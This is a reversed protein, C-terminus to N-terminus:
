PASHTKIPTTKSHLDPNATAHPTTNQFTHLRQPNPHSPPQPIVISSPSSQPHHHTNFPSTYPHTTHNTIPTTPFIYPHYTRPSHMASHHTPLRHMGEPTCQRKNRQKKPSTNKEPLADRCSQNQVKQFTSKRYSTKLRKKPPSPM